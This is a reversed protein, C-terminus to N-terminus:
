SQRPPYETGALCTPDMVHGSLGTRELFGRVLKITLQTKRNKLSRKKLNEGTKVLFSDIQFPDNCGLDPLYTDHKKVMELVHYHCFHVGKELENVRIMVTILGAEQSAFIKGCIICPKKSALPDPPRHVTTRYRGM